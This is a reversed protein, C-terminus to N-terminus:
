QDPYAEAMTRFVFGGMFDAQLLEVLKRSILLISSLNQDRAVDIEDLCGEVLVPKIIGYPRKPDRFWLLDSKEIDICRKKGLINALKYEMIPGDKARIAVDLLQVRDGLEHELFAALRDSVLPAPLTSQPCDLHLVENRMIDFTLTPAPFNALARSHMLAAYDEDSIDSHVGYPDSFGGDQQGWKLVSKDDM